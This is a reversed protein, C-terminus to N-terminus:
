KKKGGTLSITFRMGAKTLQQANETVAKYGNNSLAKQLADVESADAATGTIEIREASYRMEDFVPRTSLEKWVSSIRNVHTKFSEEANGEANVARLKQSVSSLPSESSEGLVTEYIHSPANAFSSRFAVNVGLLVFSAVFFIAGFLTMLQGFRLMKDIFKDNEAKASVNVSSLNFSYAYPLLELTRDGIEQLSIDKEPEVICIEPETEFNRKGYAALEESLIEASGCDKPMWRYLKAERQAFLVGCCGDDYDCVVVGDGNVRSAFAFPAPWLACDAYKREFEETEEQSVFWAVGTTENAKQHTIQPVVNIKSEQTGLLPRFRLELANRVSVKKGFPFSFPFAALTHLPVLVVKREGPLITVNQDMGVFRLRDKKLFRDTNLLATFDSISYEKTLLEKLRM